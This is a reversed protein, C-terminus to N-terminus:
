DFVQESRRDNQDNHDVNTEVHLPVAKPNLFVGKRSLSFNMLTYVRDEGYVWHETDMLEAVQLAITRRFLKGGAAGLMWLLLNPDQDPTGISSLADAGTACYVSLPLDPTKREEDSLWVARVRCCTFDADNENIAGMMLRMTDHDLTDDSDLQICFDGSAAQLATRRGQTIGQNTEHHILKIQLKDHWPAVAAAVDVIGGDDVM